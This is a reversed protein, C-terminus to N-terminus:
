QVFVRIRLPVGVHQSQVVCRLFIKKLLNSEITIIIHETEYL